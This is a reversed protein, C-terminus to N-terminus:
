VELMEKVLHALVAKVMEVQKLSVAGEALVALVARAVLQVATLAGM